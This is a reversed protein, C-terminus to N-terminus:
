VSAGVYVLCTTEFGPLLPNQDMARDLDEKYVQVTQKSEEINERSKDRQSERFGKDGDAKQPM